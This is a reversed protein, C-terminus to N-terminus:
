DTLDNYSGSFDSKNNWASIDAASITAAVSSSFVPDVEVGGGGSMTGVIQVGDRRTATENELLTEATVSDDTVDMLTTGNLIVKSVAM